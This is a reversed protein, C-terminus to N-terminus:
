RVSSVALFRAVAILRSPAAGSTRDCDPCTIDIQHNHVALEPEGDLCGPCRIPIEVFGDVETKLIELEVESLRGELAMSCILQGISETAGQQRALTDRESSLLDLQDSQQRVQIELRDGRAKAASLQQIFDFEKKTADRVGAQFTSAMGRLSDLEVLMPRVRREAESVANKIQLAYHEANHRLETSLTDIRERLRENASREVELRETLATRESERRQLIESSEGRMQTGQSRLLSLEAELAAKNEAAESARAESRTVAEELALCRADADRLKEQIRDVDAKVTTRDKELIEAAHRQAERFLEGLLEGAKEQLADPLDGGIVKMKSATRIKSWFLDIDKPIDSASGTQTLDRVTAMSPRVGFDFFLKKCAHHSLELRRAGAAKLSALDSMIQLRDDDTM